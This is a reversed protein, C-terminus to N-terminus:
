RLPLTAGVTLAETIIDASARRNTRRIQNPDHNQEGGYSLWSLPRGSINGKDHNPSAARKRMPKRGAWRIALAVFSAAGM